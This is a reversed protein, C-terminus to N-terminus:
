NTKEASKIPIINHGRNQEMKVLDAKMEDIQKQMEYTEYVKCGVNVSEMLQKVEAASFDGHSAQRVLQKYQEYPSAEYEVGFRVRATRGLGFRAQGITRWHEFNFDENSQGEEGELEWLERAIQAGIRYCEEFIPHKNTWNWFTSDSVMANSCFTSIGKGHIMAELIM